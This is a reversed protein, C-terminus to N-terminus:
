RRKPARTLSPTTAAFWASPKRRALGRNSYARAAITRHGVWVRPFRKAESMGSDIMKKMAMTGIAKAVRRAGRRVSRAM